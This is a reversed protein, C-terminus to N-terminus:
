QLIEGKANHTNVYENEDRRWRRLTKQAEDGGSCFFV